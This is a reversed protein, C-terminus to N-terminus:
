DDSEKTWYIEDVLSAAEYENWYNSM